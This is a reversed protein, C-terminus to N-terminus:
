KCDKKTSFSNPPRNFLKWAFSITGIGFFLAAFLRRWLNPTNIALFASTAVFALAISFLLLPKLIRNHIPIEHM